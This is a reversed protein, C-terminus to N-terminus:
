VSFSVTRDYFSCTWLMAATSKIPPSPSTQVRKREVEAIVETARIQDVANLLSEDKPKEAIIERIEDAIIANLSNKEEM